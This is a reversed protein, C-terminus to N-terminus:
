FDRLSYRVLLQGDFNVSNHLLDSRIAPTPNLRTLLDDLRSQMSDQLIYSFNLADEQDNELM